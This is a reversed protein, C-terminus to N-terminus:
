VWARGWLRVAAAEAAAVLDPLSATRLVGDEVIVRGGVIVTRVDRASACYVLNSLVNHWPVLHPRQADLVVIDARRGPELSGLEDGMGVARAGAITAMAIMHRPGIVGPDGGAVKQLLAGVKMAEFLDAKNNCNAADTGLAVNVGAALMATVPAIGDALYMNSVPNHAISTGTAAITELDDGELWVGHALLAREGLLDLGALIDVLRAVRYERKLPYWDRTEAFHFTWRLAYTEALLRLLRCREASERRAPSALGIWITTLGDARQWREVLRAIEPEVARDPISFAGIDTFTPALAVRVGIEEAARAVADSSTREAVAYHHDVFTTTGSLAHEACSLLAATGRRVGRRFRDARRDRLRATAM